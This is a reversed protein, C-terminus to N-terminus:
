KTKRWIRMAAEYQQVASTKYQHHYMKGNVTVDYAKWKNGPMGQWSMKISPKMKM